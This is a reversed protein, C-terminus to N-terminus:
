GKCRVMSPILGRVMNSHNMSEDSGGPLFRSRSFVLRRRFYEFKMKALPKTLVNAIHEKTAIYQLKVAGREVMDRIYHYNIEIHKLKDHSVPNESLKMCSQNDCHICTADLQLEFIDSLIKRLWVADCSASFTAVYESEDISLAVCSKKKSFWSIM